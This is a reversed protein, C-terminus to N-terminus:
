RSIVRTIFKLIGLGILVICCCGMDGRTHLYIGAKEALRAAIPPIDSSPAISNTRGTEDEYKM